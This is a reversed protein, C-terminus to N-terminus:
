VSKLAADHVRQRNGSPTLTVRAQDGSGTLSHSGYALPRWTKQDASRDGLRGDGSTMLRHLPDLCPPTTSCTESWPFRSMFTDPDSRRSGLPRGMRWFGGPDRFAAPVPRPGAASSLFRRTNYLPFETESIVATVERIEPVATADTARAM